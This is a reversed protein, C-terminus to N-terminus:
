TIRYFAFHPLSLSLEKPLGVVSSLLFWIVGPIAMIYSAGAFAPDAESSPNGLGSIEKFMRCEPIGQVTDQARGSSETVVGGGCQMGPKIEPPSGPISRLWSIPPDLVIVVDCVYSEMMMPDLRDAM